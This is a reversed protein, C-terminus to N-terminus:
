PRKPAVAAHHKRRNEVLFALYKLLTPRTSQSRM